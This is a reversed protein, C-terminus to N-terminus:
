NLEEELIESGDLIGAQVLVANLRANRAAKAKATTPKELLTAMLKPDKIAESIVNRVKLKPMKDFVKQAARSGAGALVLPTGTAGALAGQAGLNAGGIRLLLDFFIDEGGLLDEARSTNSLAKEFQKTKAILRDVNRAQASTFIGSKVLIQRLSDGGSKVGMLQDLRNGSILGNPTTAADLLTEYVGYRLGDMVATTDSRKALRALDSMQGSINGSQLASKIADNVNNFGLVRAATSKQNAFASGKQAQEAAREAIRRQAAVDTLANDLGLAQLSQQNNAIFRELQAPNVSGDFNTTNSALSTFFDQQQSAIAPAQEGAATQMAQLNLRQQVDSGSQAVEITREAAVSQAGDKDFGLTKGIFGQTFKQNLERSFARATQATEGVVPDLDGLMSDALTQYTRAEGFKNNARAERARELYRSRARLLDGSTTEGKELGKNKRAKKLSKALASVPEPLSEGVTLEAKMKNFAKLFSTADVKASRDVASWLQNETNRATRLETDLIDRAAKNAANPDTSPLNSNAVQQARKGASEARAKLSQLVYDRRAQAALRVLDPSGSSIAQRYADNFETIARETQKGVQDSFESSERVLQNEIALLRENGSAQGSTQSTTVGRLSKALAVPDGGADIIEGQLVSAAQGEVGRPLRTAIAAKLSSTLKPLVTSIVAPSFAGALEGYLRTTPDGPNTAEAVGAGIAPAVSLGTELAVATAPNKAQTKIIDDVTQALVNAKPASQNLADVAAVRRAQGAIPVITGVTQGVVEGGVAFPRQSQPLDSIDKYGLDFLNSMTNRISQSGGVPSDSFSGFGQEGPLLNLLKPAQNLLDVPAGVVDALGVNIGRGVAEVKEPASSPRAERYAKVVTEFEPTGKKDENAVLWNAYKEARVADAM